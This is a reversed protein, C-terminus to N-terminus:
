ILTDKKIRDPEYCRNWFINTVNYKESIKSIIEYSNGELINLNEFLSKNLSKLSKELWWLSAGGIKNYEDLTHDFIFIPIVTGLKTAESLALNDSTRLDKRFWILSIQRM